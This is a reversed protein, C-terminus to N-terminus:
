TLNKLLTQARKSHNQFKANNNDNLFMIEIYM